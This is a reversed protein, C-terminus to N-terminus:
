EELVKKRTQFEEQDIEGKAYRERLTHLAGDGRGCGWYMRKKGSLMHRIIFVFITIVFVWFLIELLLGLVGFVSNWGSGMYGYGMMSQGIYGRDAFALLPLFLVGVSVLLSKKM